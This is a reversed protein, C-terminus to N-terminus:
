IPNNSSASMGSTLSTSSNILNKVFGIVNPRVVSVDNVLETQGKYQVLGNHNATVFYSRSAYIDNMSSSYSLVSGDGAMVSNVGYGNTVHNTVFTHSTEMGEGGIYYRDVYSTVHTSGSWLSSHRSTAADFLSMNFNDIAVPLYTRTLAFTEMPSDGGLLYWVYYYYRDGLTFFKETPLLEYLSPINVAMAKLTPQLVLEKAVWALPAWMVSVADDIAGLEGHSMVPLMELSGLFPTGLTIVREVKSRVATNTLMHSTVLGGMSHAVIIASDYENVKTRLLSGSTSNPQRWDYGFFIVDRSSGYTNALETYLTQYTDLAGYNNTNRVRLSYVSNGSTDCQLKALKNVASLGPTEDAEYPPWVKTGESFGGATSALELETGMVGPVIIIARKNVKVSCTAYKTSDASSRATITCNGPSSACIMGSSTVTAISTNSSTWTLGSPAGSPLVSGSLYYTNGVNLSVSSPTLCVQSVAVTTYEFTLYPLTSTGDTTAFTKRFYSNSETASGNRIFIGKDLPSGVGTGGTKWYGSMSTMNFTQWGSANIYNYTYMNEDESQWYYCDWNINNCKATTETWNTGSYTCLDIFATGSTGSGEYLHLSLNTIQNSALGAYTSNSALGPFKMLGRGIQYTSDLYGISMNQYGSGGHAVTPRGSYIAADQITKSTGSGSVSITPDVYVPWIREPASLYSEDV